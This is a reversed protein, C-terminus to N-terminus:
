QSEPHQQIIEELNYYVRILRSRCFQNLIESLKKDSVVAREKELTRLSRVKKLSRLASSLSRFYSRNLILANALTMGILTIFHRLLFSPDHLNIWHFLLRNRFSVEEVKTKLYHANITASTRHFARSRPEYLVKWGSKWGRYSLDIDEWHFPSLLENFGGLYDLKKRSYTAFGGVAYASLLEATPVEESRQWSDETKRDEIDYNFYVCWFGRRFRGIRGGTTFHTGEWDYVKATVAFVDDDLFHEAHHILYKPEVRVDNNLLAVLQYRAKRFGTNCASAFGGNV